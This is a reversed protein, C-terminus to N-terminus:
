FANAPSPLEVTKFDLGLESELVDRRLCYCGGVAGDIRTQRQMRGKADLNLWGRDAWTRVTASVDYGFRELREELPKRLYAIHDWKHADDWRGAWGGSPEIPDHNGNVKHRGYFKQQNAASWDYLDRLAALARDASKSTETVTDKWVQALVERPSAPYELGPLAELLRNAVSELVAFIESLRGAVNNEEAMNSYCQLTLRYEDQWIPWMRRNRLLYLVLMPGVLGYNVMVTQNLSKVLQAQHGSGFPSGWLSLVRARAGGHQTSSDVCPEEGSSILVSRFSGTRQTGQVSGRGKGKGSAYTYIVSNVMARAQERPLSSFVRKTDDLVMPLGNLLNATREIWVRTTDWTHLVSAESREDPCGWLSAAFRQVTTKGTSTIGATEVVFNSAGVVQLMPPACAALLMVFPTPYTIAQNAAALWGALQGAHHFGDAVQEDGEDGGLFVVTNGGTSTLGGKQRITAATWIGQDTILNRGWLFSTSDEQWGFRSSVKIVPLCSLNDMAYAHLFRVLVKTHDSTVPLGFSALSVIERNDSIVRRDVTQYRWDGDMYWALKVQEKGSHLCFLREVILVPVPFLLHSLINGKGDDVMLEIGNQKSLIVDDPVVAHASVPADPLMSEVTVMHPQVTTKSASPSMLAPLAQKASAAASAPTGGKAYRSVAGQVLAEVEQDDLPPNCKVQNESRVAQLIADDGLGKAQLSCALKFLTENRQTQPIVAPVAVPAPHVQTVQGQGFPVPKAIERTLGRATIIRDLDSESARELNALVATQDKLVTDYDSDPDLFMTNGATAAQSQYPLGILNGLPKSPGLEDQNPFLRDFSNIQVDDGVLGQEKLCSFAVRRAKWAPVASAFFLYVHYGKGSKSRLVYPTLGAKHLAAAYGQVDPLPNGTGTHDDFDAALFWCTGDPLLPYVGLVHKGEFHGTLLEDTLPIHDLHPCKNCSVKQGAQKPCIGEKWFNACIPSYGSRSAQGNEGAKQWYRPVVDDRGRFAARFLTYLQNTEM